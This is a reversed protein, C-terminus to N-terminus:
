IESICSWPLRGKQSHQFCVGHQTLTESLLPEHSMFIEITFDVSFHTLNDKKDNAQKLSYRLRQLKINDAFKGLNIM